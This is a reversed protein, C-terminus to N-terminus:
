TSLHSSPFCISHPTPPSLLYCGPLRLLVPAEVGMQAAGPQCNPPHETSHSLTLSSPQLRLDWEPHSRPSRLEAPGCPINRAVKPGSGERLPQASCRALPRPVRPLTLRLRKLVEPARRLLTRAHLSSFPYLPQTPSSLICPQTPVLINLIYKLINLLNSVAYDSLVWSPAKPSAKGLSPHSHLHRLWSKKNTQKGWGWM